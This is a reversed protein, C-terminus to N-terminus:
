QVKRKEFQSRVMQYIKQTIYVRSDTILARIEIDPKELKVKRNKTYINALTKVIEQSKIKISRNKHKVAITGRTKIQNKSANKNIDEISPPCSFLLKNVYFTSSLRSSIQKIKDSKTDTEIVMADNNSEINKYKIKETKLCSLIESKPITKHEKSLEFLYKM